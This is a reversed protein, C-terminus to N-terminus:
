LVKDKLRKFYVKNYINHLYHDLNFQYLISIILFLVFCMCCFISVIFPWLFPFRKPSPVFLTATSLMLIAIDILNMFYNLINHIKNDQSYFVRIIFKFIICYSIIMCFYVVHLQDKILLPFLSLVSIKLFCMVNFPMIPFLLTIPIAALLISKEHVQFSLLFFALATNFLAYLFTKKKSDFFMQLNIPLIAVLTTLLCILAMQSNQLNEKFKYLVNLSCWVNAVKDEFVGRNFPFLRHLTQKSSDVSTLWPLWLLLFTGLTTLGIQLLKFIKKPLSSESFSVKLLYIFFPLAHYLEMQKYNLALTFLFSAWVHSNHLIATVAFLMLGLSINNYQFHGNDILILGPYLNLVMLTALYYQSSLVKKLAFVISISAPIFVLMDAALVTLRMFSKHDDSEIGRSQFIKVYSENINNAIWGLGYSHYATLPPYDLGWYLLDNNTSNTYWEKVPLNHTIEQWHRQAEYDGFMPPKSAGSYSSLSIIGRIALGICIIIAVDITAVNWKM